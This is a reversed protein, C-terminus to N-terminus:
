RRCVVDVVVGLIAIIIVIMILAIKKTSLGTSHVDPQLAGCGQPLSAGLQPSSPHLTTSWIARCLPELYAKLLLREEGVSLFM